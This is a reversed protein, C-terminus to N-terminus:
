EDRNGRFVVFNAYGMLGMGGATAIYSGTLSRSEHFRFLPDSNGWLFLFGIFVLSSLVILFRTNEISNRLLATAAIVVIFILYDYFVPQQFGYLVIIHNDYDPGEITPMLLGALIVLLLIYIVTRETYIRASIPLPQPRRFVQYCSLLVSAVFTGALLDFGPETNLGFTQNEYTCRMDQCFFWCPMFLLSLGVVLAKPWARKKFHKRLFAITLIISGFVLEMYFNINEYGYFWNLYSQEETIMVYGSEIPIFCCILRIIYLAFIIPYPCRLLM